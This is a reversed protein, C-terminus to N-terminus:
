ATVRVSARAEGREGADDVWEFALEGSEVATIYYRLYPNAAIGSGLNARFVVEGNYRCVFSPIVNRAVRQGADDVRFGTEMAHRISIRIEIPQGRRVEPSVQVRAFAM